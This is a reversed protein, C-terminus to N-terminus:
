MFNPSRKIAPFSPETPDSSPTSPKLAEKHLRQKKALQKAQPTAEFLSSPEFIVEQEQTQIMAVPIVGDNDEVNVPAGYEILLRAIEIDSETYPDQALNHHLATKGESDVADLDVNGLIDKVAFLRRNVVADILRTTRHGDNTRLKWNIGTISNLMFDKLCDWVSESGALCAIWLSDKGTPLPFTADAGKKLLFEVMEVDGKFSAMALPTIQNHPYDEPFFRYAMPSQMDSNTIISSDLSVGQEILEDMTKEDGGVIAEFLRYISQQQIRNHQRQGTVSESIVKWQNKNM